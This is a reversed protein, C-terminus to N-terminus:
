RTRALHHKDYPLSSANGTEYSTFSITTVVERQLKTCSGGQFNVSNRNTASPSSYASLYALGPLAAVMDAVDSMLKYLVFFRCLMTAIAENPPVKVLDHITIEAEVIKKQTMNM